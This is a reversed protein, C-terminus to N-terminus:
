IWIAFLYLFRLPLIYHKGIKYSVFSLGVNIIALGFWLNTWWGGILPYFMIMESLRDIVVDTMYGSESDIKMKRATAGDYWDSIIVMLVLLFKVSRIETVLVGFSLILGIVQYISPNVEPIPIYKEWSQYLGRYIKVFALRKPVDAM